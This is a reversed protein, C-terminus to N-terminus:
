RSPVSSGSRLPAENNVSGGYDNLTTFHVSANAADPVEGKLPFARTEGPGVMGGDDVNASRGNSQVSIGTLTVYFPTPNLAEIVPKGDVQTLRWGLQSPADASKGKLNDPRYFLKIRSRFALQIRNMDAEAA